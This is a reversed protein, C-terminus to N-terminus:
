NHQQLELSTLSISRKISQRNASSANTIATPNVKRSRAQHSAEEQPSESNRPWNVYTPTQCTRHTTFAGTSISIPYVYPKQSTKEFSLRPLIKWSNELSNTSLQTFTLIFKISIFLTIALWFKNMNELTIIISNNKNYLERKYKRWIAIRKNLRIYM